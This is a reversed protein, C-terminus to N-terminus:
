SSAGPRMLVLEVRRNAIRGARTDNSVTPRSEGHGVSQVRGASVGGDTLVKAVAAARQESLSQNYAESGTSDTHGEVMASMGAHSNLYNALATVRERSEGNVAASELGFGINRITFRVSGDSMQAMSFAGLAEALQAVDSNMGCTQLRAEASALDIRCVEVAEDAATLRSTLDGNANRMGDLEGRAVSLDAFAETLSANAEFSDADNSSFAEETLALYNRAESLEAGSATGSAEAENVAERADILRADSGIPTACAALTLASLGLALKKLM